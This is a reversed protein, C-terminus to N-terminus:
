SKREDSTTREVSGETSKTTKQESKDSPVKAATEAMNSIGARDADTLKTVDSNYLDRASKQDKDAM